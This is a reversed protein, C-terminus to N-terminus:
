TTRGLYHPVSIGVRKCGSPSASLAYMHLDLVSSQHSPVALSAMSPAALCQKVFLAACLAAESNEIAESAHM